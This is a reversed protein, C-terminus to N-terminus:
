KQIRGWINMFIEFYGLTIKEKEFGSDEAIRLIRKHSFTGKHDHVEIPSVLRLRALLYLLPQTWRAPTTLIFLGGKKLVRYIESVLARSQHVEIHEVVALMTVIDFYESDFPLGTQQSFDWRMLHLPQDTPSPKYSQTIGSSQDIGYKEQFETNLLFYPYRGCGIDLLRGQRFSDPILANAQHTRKKTLCKELLGYGRTVKQSDKISM